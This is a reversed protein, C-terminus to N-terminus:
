KQYHSSATVLIRLLHQHFNDFPYYFEWRYLCQWLVFECNLIWTSDDWIINYMHLSSPYSVYAAESQQLKYTKNTVEVLATQQALLPVFSMWSAVGFTVRKVIGVKRALHTLLSLSSVNSIVSSIRHISSSGILVSNRIEM